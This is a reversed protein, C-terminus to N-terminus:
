FILFSKTTSRNLQISPSPPPLRQPTHHTWTYLTLLVVDGYLMMMVRVVLNLLSLLNLFNELIKQMASLQTPTIVLRFMSATPDRGTSEGFDWRTSTCSSRPDRRGTSSTGVGTTPLRPHTGSSRACSRSSARLTRSYRGTCHSSTLTLTLPEHLERSVHFSQCSCLPEVSLRSTTTM